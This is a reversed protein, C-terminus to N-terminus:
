EVQIKTAGSPSKSVKKTSKKASKRKTSKKKPAKKATKGARPQDAKPPNAGKRGWAKKEPAEDILIKCTEFDLDKPEVGKPIKANKKGDTIYPGYRGIKVVIDSDPFTKILSAALKEAAETIV